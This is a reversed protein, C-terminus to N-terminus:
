LKKQAVERIIETAIKMYQFVIVALYEKNETQRKKKRYVTWKVQANSKM